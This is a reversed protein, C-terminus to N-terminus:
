HRSRLAMFNWPARAYVAAVVAAVVATRAVGSIMPTGAKGWRQPRRHQSPFVICSTGSLTSLERRTSSSQHMLPARVKPTLTGGCTDAMRPQVYVRRAPVSVLRPSNGLELVAATLSGGYLCGTDLGTAYECCQLQRAADHGFYVHM